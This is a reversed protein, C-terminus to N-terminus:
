TNNKDTRQITKTRGKYQKQGDKTNNKDTRQM